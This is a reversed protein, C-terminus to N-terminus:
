RWLPCYTWIRVPSILLTEKPAVWVAGEGAIRLRVARYLTTEPM